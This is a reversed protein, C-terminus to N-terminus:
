PLSRNELPNTPPELVALFGVMKHGEVEELQKVVTSCTVESFFFCRFLVHTAHRMKVLSVSYRCGDLRPREAMGSGRKKQAAFDISRGSEFEITESSVEVFQKM